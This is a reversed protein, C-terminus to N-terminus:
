VDFEPRQVLEAYDACGGFSWLIWGLEYSRCERRLMVGRHRDVTDSGGSVANILSRRVRAISTDLEGNRLQSRYFMHEAPSLMSVRLQNEGFLWNFGKVLSAQADIVAHASAHRLFAPAMGHQHVSYIEYFDVVRGGPVYYFWGWEGQPGQLSIVKAACANAMEIAWPRDFAEGYRYLALMPYVQSAFSSFRRRLGRGQNFFLRTPAHFYDDRMAEALRDAIARWPSREDRALSAAGSALMGIDQATLAAIGDACTFESRIRDILAAAPSIGLMAGTWLAMGYAYPKYRNAVLERCCDDYVTTVAVEAPRTAAPLRAFGLLVNLTYFTDRAPQALNTASGDLRYIASYRNRAPMWARQLGKLAYTVLPSSLPAHQDNAATMRM